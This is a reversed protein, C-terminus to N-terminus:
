KASMSGFPRQAPTKVVPLPRGLPGFVVFRTRRSSWRLPCVRLRVLRGLRGLLRVLL